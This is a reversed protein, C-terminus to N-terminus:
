NKAATPSSQGKETMVASRGQVNWLKLRLSHWHASRECVYSMLSCWGSVQWFVRYLVFSIATCAYVCVCVCTYQSVDLVSGVGGGAALQWILDFSESSYKTKM